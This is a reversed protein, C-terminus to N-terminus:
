AMASMTSDQTPAKGLFAALRRKATNRTDHNQEAFKRAAKSMAYLKKRDTVLSELADIWDEDSHVAIGNQENLIELTAGVFNGVVPVGSALYQIAKIPSKGKSFEEDPLPLLGIDISQVFQPEQGSKFPYYDFPCTLRPKKGSYVAVKSSPHRRLFERLIHDLREINPVNVPAGVWGIVLGNASSKAKPKWTNLDVANPIVEVNSSYKRAYYALFNNATTVVDASKLWLRMRRNIRLTTLWLHPEGPRTYIADDFDFIIRKSNRIIKRSLATNILSRQNHVVDYEPLSKLIQKDIETRRVFDMVVGNARMYDTYQAIRYKTSAKDFDGSFIVLAKM